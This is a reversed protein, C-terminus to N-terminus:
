DHQFDEDVSIILEQVMAPKGVPYITVTIHATSLQLFRLGTVFTRWTMSERSLNKKLNTRLSGVTSKAVASNDNNDSSTAVERKIYTDLYEEWLPGEMKAVGAAQLLMNMMANLCIDAFEGKNTKRDSENIYVTLKASIEKATTLSSTTATQNGRVELDFKRTRFFRMGKIFTPWTMIKEALANRLNTRLSTLHEKDHVYGQGENAECAEQEEAAIEKIYERILREWQDFTLRYSVLFERFIRALMGDTGSTQTVGKDTDSLLRAVANKSM